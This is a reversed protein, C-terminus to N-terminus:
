VNERILNVLFYIHRRDYESRYFGEEFMPCLKQLSKMIMAFRLAQRYISVKTPLSKQLERVLKIGLKEKEWCRTYFSAVDMGLEILLNNGWYATEWDIIVIKKTGFFINNPALDGHVLVGDAQDTKFAEKRHNEYFAIVKKKDEKGWGIEPVSIASDLIALHRQLERDVNKVLESKKLRLFLSKKLDAPLNNKKIEWLWCIQRALNTIHDFTLGTINEEQCHIVDQGLLDSGTYWFIPGERGSEIIRRVPGGLSKLWDQIKFEKIIRPRLDLKGHLCSKFFLRKGLVNTLPFYCFRPNPKGIAKRVLGPDLQWNKKKALKQIFALNQRYYNKSAM